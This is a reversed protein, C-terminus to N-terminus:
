KKTTLPIPAPEDIIEFGSVNSMPVVKRMVKGNVTKSLEFFRQKDDLMITTPTQGARDGVVTGDQASKIQGGFAVVNIFQVSGIKIPM